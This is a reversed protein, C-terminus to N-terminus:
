SAFETGAFVRPVARMEVSLVNGALGAAKHLSQSIREIAAGQDLGSCICRLAGVRIAPSCDAEDAAEIGDFGAVTAEQAARVLAEPTETHDVHLLVSRTM